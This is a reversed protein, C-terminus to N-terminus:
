RAAALEARADAIGRAIEDFLERRMQPPVVHGVGPFGRLSADFGASVLRAVLRQTPEFGLLPDAEGHLARIPTHPGDPPRAPVFSGPVWGAIPIVRVVLDPRAIGVAFALMGGQSFGTLVPRGAGPRARRLSEVLTALRDRSRTLGQEFLTRGGPDWPLPFWTFGANWREPGQPLVVRAKMPLDEFLTALGRPTDGLGHVAVVIPLVDGAVAGGTVIELTELASGEHQSPACGVLCMVLLGQVIERAIRMPVM